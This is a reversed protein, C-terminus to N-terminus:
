FLGPFIPFAQMRRQEQLGGERVVLPRCAGDETIFTGPPCLFQTQPATNPLAGPFGWSGPGLVLPVQGMFSRMQAM